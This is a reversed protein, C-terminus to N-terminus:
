FLLRAELKIESKLDGNITDLGSGITTQGPYISQAWRMWISIKKSIDYNVNVYYRYGKGYFVPISFSYLVDNEFAYLRSNYSDTEFYQLRLNGSFPKLLPKYLFDFFTLFGNEKGPSNKDFWL